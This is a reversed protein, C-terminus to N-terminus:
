QRIFWQRYRPEGIVKLKLCNNLNLSYVSHLKNDISHKLKNVRFNGRLDLELIVLCSICTCRLRLIYKSITIKIKVGLKYQM